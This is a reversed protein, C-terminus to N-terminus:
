ILGRLISLFDEDDGSRWSKEQSSLGQIGKDYPLNAPAFDKVDLGPTVPDHQALRRGSRITRPMKDDGLLSAWLMTKSRNYWSPDGSEKSAAKMESVPDDVVPAAKPTGGLIIDGGYLKKNQAEVGSQDYDGYKLNFEDFTGLPSVGEFLAPNEKRRKLLEEYYELLGAM